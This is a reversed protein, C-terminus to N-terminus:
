QNVYYEVWDTREGVLLSIGQNGSGSYRHGKTFNPVVHCGRIVAGPNVFGTAGAESSLPFELKKLRVLKDASSNHLERYWRVWLFDIRRPSSDIGGQGICIVNAHYIGLVRAYAYIQSSGQTQQQASAPHIEIDPESRSALQSDGTLSCVAAPLIV